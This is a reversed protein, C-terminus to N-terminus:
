PGFIRCAIVPFFLVQILIKACVGRKLCSGAEFKGKEDYRNNSSTDM